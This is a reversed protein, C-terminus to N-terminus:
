QQLRLSTLSVTGVLAVQQAGVQVVAVADDHDLVDGGGALGDVLRIRDELASGVHLDLAQDDAQVAHLDALAAHDGGLFLHLLLVAEGHCGDDAHGLDDLTQVVLLDLRTTMLSSM